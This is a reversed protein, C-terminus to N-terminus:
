VIKGLCKPQKTKGVVSYCQKDKWTFGDLAFGGHLGNLRPDPDIDPKIDPHQWLVDCCWRLAGPDDLFLFDYLHIKFSYTAIFSYKFQYLPSKLYIYMGSFCGVHGRIDRIDTVKPECKKYM